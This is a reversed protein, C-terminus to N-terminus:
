FLFVDHDAGCSESRGLMRMGEACEKCLPYIRVNDEEADILGALSRRLEDFLAPTAQCEFVSWQVRFGRSELLKAVRTRRRTDPTDYCVLYRM